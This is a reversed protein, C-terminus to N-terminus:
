FVEARAVDLTPYAMRHIRERKLMGFFAKVHQTTWAIAWRVRSCVPRNRRPHYTPASRPTSRPPPRSPYGIGAASSPLRGRNRAPRTAVKSTRAPPSNWHRVCRRVPPALHTPGYELWDLPPCGPHHGATRRHRKGSRSPSRWMSRDPPDCASACAASDHPRWRSRDRVAPPSRDTDASISLAGWSGTAQHLAGGRLPMAVCAHGPLAPPLAVVVSCPPYGNALRFCRIKSFSRSRSCPM